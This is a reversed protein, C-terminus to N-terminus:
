VRMWTHEENNLSGKSGQLLDTFVRRLEQIAIGEVPGEVDHDGLEQLEELVAAGLDPPHPEGPSQRPGPTPLAPTVVHGSGALDWAMAQTFWNMM